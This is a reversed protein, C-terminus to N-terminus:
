LVEKVALSAIGYCGPDFSAYEATDTALGGVNQVWISVTHSGASLGTFLGFIFSNDHQNPTRIIARARNNTTPLDDIRLEYIVASVGGNFNGVFLNSQFLLEINTDADVKTFTGINRIKTYTKTVVDVGFCAVGLVRYRTASRWSLSNSSSQALIKGATGDVGNTKITGTLNINGVVDLAETPATKNIGVNQAFLFHNIFFLLSLVIVKKM